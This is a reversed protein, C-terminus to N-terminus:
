VHLVSSSSLRLLILALIDVNASSLYSFAVHMKNFFIYPKPVFCRSGHFVASLVLWFSPSLRSPGPCRSSCLRLDLVDPNLHQFQLVLLLVPSGTTISPLFYFFHIYIISVANDLDSDSFILMVSLNLVKNYHFSSKHKWVFGAGVSLWLSFLIFDSSM